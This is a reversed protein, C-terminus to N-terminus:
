ETNLWTTIGRLMKQFWEQLVDIPISIGASHTYFFIGLDLGIWDVLWGIRVSYSSSQIEVM